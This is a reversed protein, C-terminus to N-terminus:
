PREKYVQHGLSHLTHALGSVRTLIRRRVFLLKRQKSFSVKKKKKQFTASHMLVNYTLIFIWGAHDFLGSLGICVSPLM